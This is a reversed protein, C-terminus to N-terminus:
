GTARKHRQNQMSAEAQGSRSERDLEDMRERLEGWAEARGFRRAMDRYWIPWCVVTYLSSRNPRREVLLYDRDELWRVSRIVTARNVSADDAITAVSPWSQMFNEAAPEFGARARVAAYCRIHAGTVGPEQLLGHPIRVEPEKDITPRGDERMPTSM